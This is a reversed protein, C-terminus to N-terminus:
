RIFYIIVICAIVWLIMNILLPKDELLVEEASEASGKVSTVMQYRFLGYIVFPITVIMNRNSLSISYMCYSLIAAGDVSSIMTQLLQPTYTQLVKRSDKQDETHGAAAANDMESKRKNLALFLSFLMTCVILWPSVFIHVAAGGAVARLVFGASIVMVDIIPLNKLIISYYLMLAAYVACIILFNINVFYAGLLSSCFLVIFTVWASRTSVTGSAIPRKCKLPHNKDLERDCIDNFIYISSSLLCFIIFALINIPLLTVTFFNGSFVLAAFLFANKIWQKPRLLKLINLFMYNAM